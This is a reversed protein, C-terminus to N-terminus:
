VLKGFFKECTKYTEIIEPIENLQSTIEATIRNGLGLYSRAIISLIESKRDGYTDLQYTKILEFVKSYNALLYANKFMNYIDEYEM